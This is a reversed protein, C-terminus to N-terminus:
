KSGKQKGKSEKLPLSRNFVPKKSTSDQDVAFFGLREFQVCTGTAYEALSPEAFAQFVHKSDRNVASMWNGGLELPDEVTFLDDFCRAEITLPEVGPEPEAVWHIYGSCKEANEPDYEVDVQVVEGNGDTHMEVVKIPYAYRLGVWKGPALRKYGKSDETRFDEREIYVVGSFPVERSGLEPNKPHNDVKLMEMGEKYNVINIRLPDLVALRRLAIPDLYQRQCHELLSYQTVNKSRTVGLMDAFQNIAQPSFGRRRFGVLTPMRPDDWGDVIGENVLKMLKRKSMVTNTINLRSYEWVLPKYLNLQDLLWFYSEQRDAFELTCLSHTVNELSDVICHTFDYTPYVCWKDGVHPHEKYIIRYAVSDWMNANTSTYDMKMRLCYEGEAYMGNTMNEFIELSEEIPRDRCPSPQKNERQLSIEDGTSNDAYALDNKILEVAFAHLEDFYDSSYTVKYPKHGLWEVIDKIGDIYEQSEAAPNTDDFRLYCVGDSKVAYGFDLAMAKAHGIHLYGNPEPPFRTVVKGGTAELHKKLLEPDNKTNEEPAPFRAATQVGAAELLLEEDTKKPGAEKKPKKAKKVKKTKVLPKMDEETKEGLMAFLKADMADKVMKGDAWPLTKRLQGQFKGLNVHYRREKIEDSAAEMVVDVEKEIQEKTVVVGVGCASEFKQEDLENVGLKTFFKLAAEFQANSAIKQQAVQKSLFGLHMMSGKPM